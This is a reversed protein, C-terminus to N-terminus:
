MSSLITEAIVQAALKSGAESPHVGDKAYLSAPDPHDRFAARVDALLAGSARAAEGFAEGMQACMQEQSLALTMLRAVHAAYAWTAYLVPMAGAARALDSLRVVSEVFRERSTVAANSMEQMVVFDWREGALAELTREGMRTAPNLQEALRAGGRVHAVVEAGTLRALEGPMDHASTLSNGLM